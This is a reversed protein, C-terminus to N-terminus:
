GSARRHARGDEAGETELYGALDARAQALTAGVTGEAIECIAAIEAYSLDAFYRLFVVLRRRESLQRLGEALGSESSREPAPLEAVAESSRRRASRRASERATRLAISWVWGELREVDKLSRRSRLARAFAEQVADRASERDGTISSLVTLFAQFRERYLREIAQAHEDM